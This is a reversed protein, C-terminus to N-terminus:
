QAVSVAAMINMLAWALHARKKRYLVLRKWAEYDPGPSRLLESEHQDHKYKRDYHRM